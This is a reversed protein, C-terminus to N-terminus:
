KSLKKFLEIRRNIVPAALDDEQYRYKIASVDKANISLETFGADMLAKIARRRKKSSLYEASEDPDLAKAAFEADFAADGTVLDHVRGLLQLRGIDLDQGKSITLGFFLAVERKLIFRPPSYRGGLDLVILLPPDHGPLRLSHGKLVSITMEGGLERALPALQKRAARRIILTVFIAVFIFCAGLFIYGIYDTM